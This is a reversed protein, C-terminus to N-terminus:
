VTQNKQPQLIGGGCVCLYDPIEVVTFGAKAICRFLVAMFASYFTIMQIVVELIEMSRSLKKDTM